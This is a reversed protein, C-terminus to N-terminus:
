DTCKIFIHVNSQKIPIKCSYLNFLNDIFYINLVQELSNAAILDGITISESGGLFPSDKLFHKDFIKMTGQFEKFFKEILLNDPEELKFLAKYFCKNRVASLLPPNQVSQTLLIAIPILSFGM